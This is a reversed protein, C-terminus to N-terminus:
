EISEFLNVDTFDQFENAHRTYETLVDGGEFKNIDPAPKKPASKFEITLYGASSSTDRQDRPLSKATYSITNKGPKLYRTIDTNTEPEFFTGVLQGNVMVRIRYGARPTGKTHLWYWRKVPPNLLAMGPIEPVMAPNAQLHFQAQTGLFYGGFFMGVFLLFVVLIRQMIGGGRTKSVTASAPDIPNSGTTM